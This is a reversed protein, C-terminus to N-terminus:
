VVDFIHAKYAELAVYLGDATLEAHDRVYRVGAIEDYFAVNGTKHGVLSGIRLRAQAPKDSYNIVVLKLGQGNQWAWALLNRFTNNELWARNAEVPAWENDHYAPENITTLLRQYYSEVELDPTELPERVLQVPLRLRRGELQGDHFMRLGPTTGLITAAALSREKGFAVVARAEDHNEIFHVSRQEFDKNAILYSQIEAADAFRMKDYLLKNYTFDFGLERLAGELGWYAEAIFVFGAHKQRVSGIAETWFEGTPRPYGTVFEGWVQGFIDNLALMAMDCRVGDVIGAIRLLEDIYARRFDPSYFNVQVTDTWPPFNPDRGHALLVGKETPYFWDAHRRADTETGSVFWDPHTLTWPHDFALHNPVFDVILHLGMANLRAKLEALDQSTGLTPDLEYASVAYPSGAIDEATWGPLVSDYEHRMAPNLLAQQRAGASSQWIGMLWVLDIGLRRLTQWEDDPINSLSIDRGYKRALRRVFLRTNIEYLHPNRRM